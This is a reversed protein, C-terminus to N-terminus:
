PGERGTVPISLSSILQFVLDSIKSYILFDEHLVFIYEM